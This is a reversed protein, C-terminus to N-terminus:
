HKGLFPLVKYETSGRGPSRTDLSLSPLHYNSYVHLPTHGKPQSSRTPNTKGVEDVPGGLFPPQDSLYRAHRRVSIATGISLLRHVTKTHNLSQGIKDFSRDTKQDDIEMSQIGRALFHTTSLFFDSAISLPLPLVTAQHVKM